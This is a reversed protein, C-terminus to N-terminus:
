FLRLNEAVTLGEYLYPEHAVVGIRRRTLDLSTQPDHGFIRLTGGQPRLLGSLTRLLTTKGAGNDGVVGVAEGAAVRLDVSSLVLRGAIRRRLADAAVPWPLADALPESM